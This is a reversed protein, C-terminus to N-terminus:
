LWAYASRLKDRGDRDIIQGHCMVLRWFDRELIRELDARARKRDRYVLRLPRSVGVKGHIGGLKLYMRTFFHESTEFNEVLDTAVLSRSAPHVFVTERLMTGGMQIAELEDGWPAAGDSLETHFSLDPRKKALGPAGHIQATPYTAAFEGIRLHHYLNPAVVHEVPGLDDIAGRIEDTLEIPSHVWLGGSRLRVVTMRTGVHLGLFTQPADAVWVGTDIAELAAM